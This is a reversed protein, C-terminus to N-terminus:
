MRLGNSKLFFLCIVLYLNMDHIKFIIHRPIYRSFFVPSVYKTEFYLNLTEFYLNLFSFEFQKM